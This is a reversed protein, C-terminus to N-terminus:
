PNRDRPSGKSIRGVRVGTTVLVLPMGDLPNEAVTVKEGYV